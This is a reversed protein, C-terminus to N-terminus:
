RGCQSNHISVATGAATLGGYVWSRATDRHREPFVYEVVLWTLGFAIVKGLVMVGTDPDEGVLWSNAETCGRDLAARTTLVDAVGYTLIATTFLVKSTNSWTEEKFGYHLRPKGELANMESLADARATGALCLTILLAGVLKKWKIM